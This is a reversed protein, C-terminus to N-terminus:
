RGGVPHVQGTAYKIPPSLNVIGQYGAYKTSLVPLGSQQPLTIAGPIFSNFFRNGYHYIMTTAQFFAATSSTSTSILASVVSNPLYRSVQFSALVSDSVSDVTIIADAVQTDPYPAPM